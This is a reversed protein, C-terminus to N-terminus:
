CNSEVVLNVTVGLGVGSEGVWGVDVGVDSLYELMSLKDLSKVGVVACSARRSLPNVKM